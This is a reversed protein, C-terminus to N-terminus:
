QLDKSDEKKLEEKPHEPNVPLEGWYANKVPTTGYMEHGWQRYQEYDSNFININNTM